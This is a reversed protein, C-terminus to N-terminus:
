GPSLAVRKWPFHPRTHRLASRSVVSHEVQLSCLTPKEIVSVDDNLSTGQGIEATNDLFSPSAELSCVMRNM